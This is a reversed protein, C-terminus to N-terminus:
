DQCPQFGQPQAWEELCSVRKEITPPPPELHLKQRVWALDGMAIDKDWPYPKAMGPITGTNAWQWIVIDELKWGRPVLPHVQANYTIPDNVNPAVAWPYNAAWLLFDKEWGCPTVNKFKTANWYWQASYIPTPLGSLRRIESAYIRNQEMLAAAPILHHGASHEKVGLEEDAVVIDPMRTHGKPLLHDVAWAAERGPNKNAPWNVNYAVFLLGEDEAQLKATEYFPDAYVCGITCRWAFFGLGAQKAAKMNPEKNNASGDAGALRTM